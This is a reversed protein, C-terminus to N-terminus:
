WQAVGAGRDFKYTFGGGPELQARSPRILSMAPHRAGSM